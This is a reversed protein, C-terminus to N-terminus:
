YSWLHTRDWSLYFFLWIGATALTLQWLNPQPLPTQKIIIHTKFSRKYLSGEKVKYYSTTVCCEIGPHNSSVRLVRRSLNSRTGQSQKGTIISIKPNRPPTAQVDWLGPYGIKVLRCLQFREPKRVIAEKHHNFGEQHYFSINKKRDAMQRERKKARTKDKPLLIIRVNKKRSM